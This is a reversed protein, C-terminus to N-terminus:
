KKCTLSMGHPPEVTRVGVWMDEAASLILPYLTRVQEASAPHYAIRHTGEIELQAPAEELHKDYVNKRYIPEGATPFIFQHAHLEFSGRTNYAIAHGDVLPFIVMQRTTPEERHFDFDRISREVPIDHRPFNRVASAIVGLYRRTQWRKFANSNALKEQKM